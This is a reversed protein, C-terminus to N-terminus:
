PNTCVGSANFKYTKGGISKSTNSLMYGNGDLYYWSGGDKVWKNYVMYGSSDVYCWGKSDKVWKNYVMYGSGDVYCWGKSDKVWKNYVMYGSADVYCWGKSDKVWKNYVMYGSGDVYCWGKSDKVWKNYVIYGSGDIYCWGKSDKKWQNTLMKGDVGLYCWGKSDKRWANKVMTGKEYFYWIGNEKVWGDKMPEPEPEPEPEPKATATFTALYTADGTVSTVPSGWGDFTYTYNDDEPRTPTEPLRVTDGYHYEERSLVDGNWNLFYVTYNRYHSEYQAIYTVDETCYQAVPKDWGVFTYTYTNDQPKQPEAPLGILDNYRYMCRNYVSGDADLFTVAYYRYDWAFQATYSANGECASVPRDWGSFTYCYTNDGQKTPTEPPSVTEGWHYTAESLLTGDWNYFSVTYAVYTKNYTAKYTADGNAATIPKDWGAFTYVYTEDAARHPDAPPTVTAGPAYATSQLVKGDHDVFSVTYKITDDTYPEYVTNNKTNEDYYGDSRDCVLYGREYKFGYIKFQEGISLDPSYILQSEGTVPDCRYIGTTLSYLLYNDTSSLKAEGYNYGSYWGDKVSRLIEHNTGEAIKINYDNFDIYYLTNNVLQFATYSDQWYYSDYTTDVPDSTYDIGNKHHGTAIIGDTSRLFNSHYVQGTVDWVPDDWTVDVHYPKGDIYVLNWAHYLMTSSVYENYIGVRNLLYTYAMAYGQCVGKQNVLVGYINYDPSTLEGALYASYNYETWVALRDHLLLAKEVDTLATNGEIGRLLIDAAEKVEAFGAAYEQPTDAEPLYSVSIDTLYGSNFGYVALGYVHYAEPTRYWIFESIQTALDGEDPINFDSIDIHDSCSAFREVLAQRFVNLDVYDELNVEKKQPVSSLYGQRTKMAPAANAETTPICLLLLVVAIASILFKKM